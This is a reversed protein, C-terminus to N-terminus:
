QEKTEGRARTLSSDQFTQRDVRVSHLQVRLSLSMAGRRDKQVHHVRLLEAVGLRGRSARGDPSPRRRPIEAGVRIRADGASHHMDRLVLGVAPDSHDRCAHPRETETAGPTSQGVHASDRASRAPQIDSQRHTGRSVHPTRHVVDMTDVVLRRRRRAGGPTDHLTRRGNVLLLRAHPVAGRVMYRHRRGGEQRSKDHM